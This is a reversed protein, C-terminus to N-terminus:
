VECTGHACMYTEIRLEFDVLVLLLCDTTWHANGLIHPDHARMQVNARTHMHANESGGSPARPVKSLGQAAGQASAAPPTKSNDNKQLHVRAICLPTGM